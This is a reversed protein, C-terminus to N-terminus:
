WEVYVLGDAGNGGGFWHNGLLYGGGGGAGYGAGGRAYQGNGGAPGKGNVLLGGGGGGGVHGFAISGGAGGSGPVFSNRKFIRLSNSYTGQGNGGSQWANNGAGGDTGGAGSTGTNPHSPGGGGSGGQSGQWNSTPAVGGNSTHYQGFASREGATATQSQDNVRHGSGQGGKGVVINIREFQEVVVEGVQVYGSGGGGAYGSGGGAGGGVVLVRVSSVGLPVVFKGSSTFIASGNNGLIQMVM